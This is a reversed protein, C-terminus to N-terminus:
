DKLLTLIDSLALNYTDIHSPTHLPQAYLEHPKRGDDKRLAEIKERLAANRTSLLNQIFTKLVAREESYGDDNYMTELFVRDFEKEWEQPNTDDKLEKKPFFERNGEYM